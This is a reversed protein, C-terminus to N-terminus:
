VGPRTDRTGAATKRDFGGRTDKAFESSSGAARDRLDGGAENGAAAHLHVALGLRSASALEPCAVVDGDAVGDHM